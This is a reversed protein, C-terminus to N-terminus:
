KRKAPRKPASQGGQEVVRRRKPPAEPPAEAAAAAAAPPQPPRPAYKKDPRQFGPAPPAGPRAPPGDHRPRADRPEFKNGRPAFGRPEFTKGPPGDHRPRADRPEFKKHPRPFAPPPAGEARPPSESVHRPPAESVHRPPPESVHRPPPPESVHRPEGGGDHAEPGVVGLVPPMSTEFVQNSGASPEIRIRPDRPDPKKVSQAFSAAVNAAVEFSSQADGIRIAGVENGRIGGKRCVMALVRRPDAGHREGWNVQFPVFGENPPGAERPGREFGGQPPGDRRPGRPGREPAGGLRHPRVDAGPGNNWEARGRPPRPTSATIPTVEMPACPGAHRARGLLAMVLETPEMSGLLREALPRLRPDPTKGAGVPHALEAAFREDAAHLVDSATPAPSWVADDMGARRLMFRLRERAAPPVLVINTGKKGARGTRGSRHTLVEADGPLDAHIVRTIDAVDIGRAAVDTAVLTTVAGSRFADLTRTRDRQDLDGHIPRAPLGMDSLRDALESAGDRTRVFVLAREGPSLLLLNVLARDREEPLVTYVIHSIDENVEGAGAGAAVVANRQCRDALRAVERPFTASLLLTRREKPTQELITDLEDKFGLDLMQDAEDLVVVALQSPDISRRGLHDILRGPTGTIVLPGQRLAHLERPYSAGGTVAAVKVGLPEFLWSLERAIQTALERTPAIVLAFPRAAAGGAGERADAAKELDPAIALGVAVTKGSGTQSFIRLDRGALAPDLVAEQVPTLSTFGRAEFAGRIRPSLTDFTPSPSM